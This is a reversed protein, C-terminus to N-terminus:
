HARAKKQRRDENMMEVMKGVSSNEAARPLTWSSWTSSWCASRFSLDYAFFFIAKFFITAFMVIPFSLLDKKDKKQKM